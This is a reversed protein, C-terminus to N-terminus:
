AAEIESRVQRLAEIYAQTNGPVVITSSVVNTQTEPEAFGLWKARRDMIALAAQVAAVKGDMADAWVASQLADLRSLEVALAERKEYYDVTDAAEAILESVAKRAQGESIKLEEAIAWWSMGGLRLEHARRAQKTKLERTNAAAVAKNSREVATM